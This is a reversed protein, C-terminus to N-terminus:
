PLEVALFPIVLVPLRLIPRQPLLRTELPRLDFSWAGGERDAGGGGRRLGRDLSGLIDPFLTLLACGSADFNPTDIESTLAPFFAASVAAVLTAAAVLAAALSAASFVQNQSLVM